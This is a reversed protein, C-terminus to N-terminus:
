VPPAQSSAERGTQGQERKKSRKVKYMAEDAGTMLENLTTHAADDLTAHGVSLSLEYKRGPASNALACAEKLKQEIAGIGRRSFQGAVAFEDGGIRGLVDSERFTAKLLDAAEVIYESGADHGLSDNILKLGDLDVFLVSFPVKSRRAMRMAQEALLRFGRLNRLGTLEDHLALSNIETEMANIRWVLFLLLSISIISAMSALLATVFDAPMRGVGLIRARAGERLFPMLLLVPSLLRALKGANGNGVYISFIGGETRRLCTCLALLSLCLLTGGSASVNESSGFVKWESLFHASVLTFTVMCTCLALADSLWFTIRYRANMTALTLGLLLYGVAGQSSMTSRDALGNTRAIERAIEPLYPFWRNLLTLAGLLVVGGALLRSIWRRWGTQGTGLYMLCLTGLLAAFASGARMPLWRALVTWGPSPTLWEALNLTSVLVLLALSANELREFWAIIEVNPDRPVMVPAANLM